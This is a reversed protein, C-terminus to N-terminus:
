IATIRRVATKGHNAPFYHSCSLSDIDPYIGNVFTMLEM